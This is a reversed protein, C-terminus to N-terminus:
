KILHDILRDVKAELRDLQEFRIQDEAIHLDLKTRTDTGVYRIMGWVMGFIIPTLGLIQFFLQLTM